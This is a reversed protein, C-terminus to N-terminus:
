IIECYQLIQLQTSSPQTSFTISYKSKHWKTKLIVIYYHNTFCIDLFNFLLKWFTNPQIDDMNEQFTNDLLLAM